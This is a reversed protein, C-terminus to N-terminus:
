KKRGHLTQSVHSSRVGKNRRGTGRLLDAKTMMDKGVWSLYVTLIRVTKGTQGGIM